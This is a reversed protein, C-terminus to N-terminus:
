PVTSSPSQRKQKISGVLLLIMIEGATRPLVLLLHPVVTGGQSGSDVFVSRLNITWLDRDAAPSPYHVSANEPFM